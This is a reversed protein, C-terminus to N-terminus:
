RDMSENILSVLGSWVMMVLASKQVAGFGVGVGFGFDARTKGPWTLGNWDKVMNLARLFDSHAFLEEVVGPTLLEQVLTVLLEM